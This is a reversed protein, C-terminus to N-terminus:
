VLGVFFVGCVEEEPFFVWCVDHLPWAWPALAVGTPVDLAGDHGECAEDGSAEIVGEGCGCSGDFDIEVGAAFVVDEWVM